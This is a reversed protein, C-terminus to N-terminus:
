LRVAPIWGAHMFEAVKRVSGDPQPYHISVRENFSYMPTVGRAWLAAELAAMFWPAGGVMVSTAGAAVAFDALAAARSVIEAATPCGIFTLLKQVEAKNTPETVGDAIQLASSAHQTLNLISM